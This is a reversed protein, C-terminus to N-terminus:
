PSDNELTVGECVLEPHAGTTGDVETKLFMGVSTFDRKELNHLPGKVYAITSLDKNRRPNYM